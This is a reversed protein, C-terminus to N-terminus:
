IGGGGLDKGVVKDLIAVERCVGGDTEGAKSREVTSPVLLKGYPSVM